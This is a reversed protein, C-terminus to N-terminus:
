SLHRAGASPTVVWGDTVAGPEALAVICGGFGGGTMRTGYVGPLADVAAVAADMVPTSTGFDHSLSFHGVRMIRGANVFDSAALAAAFDRVRQNESIVHRARRRILEDDIATTDAVTALRLPGIEAEAEACERVRDAYASGELTRHVIFKVVIDIGDPIPSPTVELSHCDIMTAHGEVGAAISLQDMIGTPVGTAEHEARRAAQSLQLPTGDFGLALGIACELAASSSLGAGAPIDSTVHGRLGTTAGMQVAMAAIYSGWHPDVSALDGTFPLTIDVDGPMDSSTLVISGEHETYTITTGRDIAM